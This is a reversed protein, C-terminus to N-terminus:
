RGHRPLCASIRLYFKEFTLNRCGSMADVVASSASGWGSAAPACCFQRAIRDSTEVRCMARRSELPVFYPSHVCHQVNERKDSGSHEERRPHKVFDHGHKLSKLAHCNIDFNVTHEPQSRLLENPRRRLKPETCRSVQAPRNLFSIYYPADIQCLAETKWFRSTASMGIQDPINEGSQIRDM